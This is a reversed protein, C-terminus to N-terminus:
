REAKMRSWKLGYRWLFYLAAIYGVMYIFQGIVYGANYAELKGLVLKLMLVPIRIMMPLSGIFAFSLLVALAIFLYGLIKRSKM